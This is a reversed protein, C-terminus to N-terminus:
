ETIWIPSSLALDGDEQTVLVYYYETPQAEVQLKLKPASNKVEYTKIIEGMRYVDVRKFNERDEDSLSIELDKVGSRLTSGMEASNMRFSLKLNRDETAYTRRARYADLIGERTLEKAWVAVLFDNRMGWDKDHNDQGGLVGLRWGKKNADDLYNNEGSYGKNFFYHTIGKSKSFMELGVIQDVAYSRLKFHDFELGLHDRGPHNFRAILEPHKSIWRCMDKVRIEEVCSTIDDAHTVTIHGLLPSSWEFGHLAVFRGDENYKAATDKIKQWKNDWPWLTLIESHDSISFFDIKAEDRAMTYAEDPTGKGDSFSTHGHLNGYYVNYDENHIEVPFNQREAVVEVEEEERRPEWMPVVDLNLNRVTDLNKEISAYTLSGEKKCLLLALLQSRSIRVFCKDDCHDGKMLREISRLEYMTPNKGLIQQFLAVVYQDNHLTQSRAGNDLSEIIQQMEQKVNAEDAFLTVSLVLFLYLASKFM